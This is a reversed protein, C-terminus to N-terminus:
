RRASMRGDFRSFSFLSRSAPAIMRAFAFRVSYATSPARLENPPVNQLGYSVSRSGPIDLEPEAVATAAFRTVHAIPSTVTTEIRQGADTFLVTPSAGVCSSTLRSPMIPDPRTMRTPGIQRVTSSAAFIRSTMAPYSGFSSSVAELTPRMGACGYALKVLARRSSPTRMPTSRSYMRRDSSVAASWSLM